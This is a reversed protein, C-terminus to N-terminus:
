KCKLTAFTLEFTKMQEQPNEFDLEPIDGAQAPESGGNNGGVESEDENEDDQKLFEFIKAGRVFMRHSYLCPESISFKEGDKYKSGCNVGIYSDAESISLTETMVTDNNKISRQKLSEGNNINKNQIAAGSNASLNQLSSPPFAASAPIFPVSESPLGHKGPPDASKGRTLTNEQSLESRENKLGRIPISRPEVRSVARAASNFGAIGNSPPKQENDIQPFRNKNDVNINSNNQPATNGIPSLNFVSPNKTKSFSSNVTPSM